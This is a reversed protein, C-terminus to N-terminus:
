PLISRPAVAEGGDANMQAIIFMRRRCVSNRNAESPDTIEKIFFSVYTLRRAKGQFKFTERRRGLVPLRSV